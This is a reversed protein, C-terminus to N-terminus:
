IMAFPLVGIGGSLKTIGLAIGFPLIVGWSSLENCETSSWFGKDRLDFGMGALLNANSVLIVLEGLSPLYYKLNSIGDSYSQAFQAPYCTYNLRCLAKTNDKGNLDSLANSTNTEGNFFLPNLTKDELFPKPLQEIDRSSNWGNTYMDSYFYGQHNTTSDGIVNTLVSYNLLPTDEAVDSWSLTTFDEYSIPILRARKDPLVDSPIVVVGFPTGLSDKWESPSITAAKEGDWYVVDGVKIPHYMVKESEVIFSLNPSVFNESDIFTNYEQLTNCLRIYKM